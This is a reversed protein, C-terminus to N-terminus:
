TASVPADSLIMEIDTYHFAARASRGREEADSEAYVLTDGIINRVDVVTYCVEDVNFQRGVIEDM